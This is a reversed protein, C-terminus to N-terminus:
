RRLKTGDAIMTELVACVAATDAEGYGQEMAAAYLPATTALLPTPSGLDAAFAGIVAMDKQWVSMKMTPKDYSNAAMMPARLAFMRSAGAGAGALAVLQQPDLGAMMGLVMAEAAAVNHIAVLLNAVFKMRSGNGFVGVDHAERAFDRMLPQLKEIEGPDGSAYLVLDRHEAQAGTGSIPCDIAVHGAAILVRAFAEKDAIALTSLEVVVRRGQADRAIVEATAIVAEPSPLSTLVQEAEALLTAIHPAIVVGAAAAKARAEATTDYGVVRWGAAALNRAIAGGMIGLGIVGVTGKMPNRRGTIVDV